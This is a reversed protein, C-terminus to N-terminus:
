MIIIITIIYCIIIFCQIHILSCYILIILLEKRVYTDDMCLEIVYMRVWSVLVYGM